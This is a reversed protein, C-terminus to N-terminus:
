QYKQIPRNMIKTTINARPPTSPRLSRMQRALRLGDHACGTKFGLAEALAEARQRHRAVDIEAQLAAGAVRQDPRVAGALRAEDIQDGPHEPRVGAADQEAALVNGM